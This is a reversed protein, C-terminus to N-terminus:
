RFRREFKARTDICTLLSKYRKDIEGPEVVVDISAALDDILRDNLRLRMGVLLNKKEEFSEADLFSLLDSNCDVKTEDTVEESVIDITQTEEPDAKKASVDLLEFRYKQTVNPYKDHDVESIFMDYPRAHVGFDDYLKQYIVLNEGTESHKAVCVIQYLKNKFHRYIQGTKVERNEM